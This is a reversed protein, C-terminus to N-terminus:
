CERGQSQKQHMGRHTHVPLATSVAGMSPDRGGMQAGPKVQAWDQSKFFIFLCPSRLIHVLLEFLKQSAGPVEPLSDQVPHVASCLWPEQGRSCACSLPLVQALWPHALQGSVSHVSASCLLSLVVWLSPPGKGHGSATLCGGLVLWGGLVLSGCWAPPRALVPLLSIAAGPECELKCLAVRM